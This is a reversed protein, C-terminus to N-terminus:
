FSALLRSGHQGCRLVMASEGTPALPNGQLVLGIKRYPRFLEGTAGKKTRRRRNACPDVSRQCLPWAVRACLAVRFSIWTRLDAWTMLYAQAILDVAKYEKSGLYRDNLTIVYAPAGIKKCLAVGELICKYDSAFIRGCLVSHPPLNIRM